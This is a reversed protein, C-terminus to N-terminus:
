GQAQQDPDVSGEVRLHVPCSDEVVMEVGDENRQHGRGYNNREPDCTCGAKTANPAGPLLPMGAVYPLKVYTGESWPLLVYEEDATKVRIIEASALNEETEQQETAPEEAVDDIEMTLPPAQARGEDHHLQGQISALAQKRIRMEEDVIWVADVEVSTTRLGPGSHGNWIHIEVESDLGDPLEEAVEQLKEIVERINVAAEVTAATWGNVVRGSITPVAVARTSGFNETSCGHLFSWPGGGNHVFKVVAHVRTAQGVWVGCVTQRPKLLSSGTCCPRAAGHL